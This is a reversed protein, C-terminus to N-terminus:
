ERFDTVRYLHALIGLWSFRSYLRVSSQQTMATQAAWRREAEARSFSPIGSSMAPTYSLPTLMRYSTLRLGSRGDLSREAVVAVIFALDLSVAAGGLSFTM